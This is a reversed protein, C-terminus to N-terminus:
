SAGGVERLERIVISRNSERSAADKGSQREFTESNTSIQLQEPPVGRHILYDRAALARKTSLQLNYDFSARDDANGAILVRRKRDKALWRIVEELQEGQMKGIRWQNTGQPITWVALPETSVPVMAMSSSKRKILDFDIGCHGMVRYDAATIGDIIRTGGAVDCSIGKNWQRGVGGMFEVPTRGGGSGAFTHSGAITAYAYLHKPLQVRTAAGFTLADDYTMGMVETKEVARYGVNAALLVRGWTKSAILRQEYSPGKGGTFLTRKGTPIGIDSLLALGFRGPEDPMLRLKLAFRIDGLAAGSYNTLTTCGANLCKTGNQMLAIPIDFGFDLFELIGFGAVFDMLVQNEVIDTTLGALLPDSFSITRRAYQFYASVNAAGQELTTATDVNAIGRGDINPRFFLGNFGQINSDDAATPRPISTVVFSTFFILAILLLFRPCWCRSEARARRAIM